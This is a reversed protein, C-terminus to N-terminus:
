YVGPLFRYKVKSCYQIWNQGYKAMCRNEDTIARAILFGTIFFAPTYACISPFGQFATFILFTAAESVYNPHRSLSWYGSGLLLNAKADGSDTKYKATIFFSDFGKIKMDGKCKRFEYKQRDIRETLAILIISLISFILNSITRLSRNSRSLVTVPTTYLIPHWVLDTWLRYFGCNSHKSDLSNLYLDESWHFKAIYFLQLSSLCLLSNSIKGYLIKQSYLASIIYLPWIVFTFRTRIFYKLDIDLFKPHREIGFYLENATTIEYDNGFHYILILYTLILLSFMAFILIISNFHEYLVDGRYFGASVGLIYLLCTLICSFFSNIDRIEEGESSLVIAKDHPLGWYLILQMACHIITFKWATLDFIPPICRFIFPYQYFLPKLTQLAEQIAQIDKQSVSSRRSLSSVSGGM